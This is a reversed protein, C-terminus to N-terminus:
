RNFAPVERGWDGLRGVGGGDWCILIDKSLALHGRSPLMLAAQSGSYFQIHRNCKTGLLLNFYHLVVSEKIPDDM